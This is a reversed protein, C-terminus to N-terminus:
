QPKAVGGGFVGYGTFTFELVPRFMASNGQTPAPERLIVFEATVTSGVQGPTVGTGSGSGSGSGSSAASSAGVMITATGSCDPNVTYTGTLQNIAASTTNVLVLNGAGDPNLQGVLWYATITPFSGSGGSSSGGSGTGSTSTNLVGERAVLGFSGTLLADSCAGPSAITRTLTLITGGTTDNQALAIENGGEVIVGAFSATHGPTSGTGTGSGSGTSAMEADIAKELVTSDFTVAVTCDSSVTYTGVVIQTPLGAIQASTLGLFNTAPFVLLNGNGDAFVTGGIDFPVGLAARVIFGRLGRFPYGPYLDPNGTTGSSGILGPFGTLGAAFLTRHATFAYEGYVDGNGSCVRAQLATAFLTLSMVLICFIWRRSPAKM